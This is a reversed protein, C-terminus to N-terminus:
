KRIYRRGKNKGIAKIKGQKVLEKLLTRARTEKVDIFKAIESTKYEKNCHIITTAEVKGYYNTQESYTDQIYQIINGIDRVDLDTDNVIM